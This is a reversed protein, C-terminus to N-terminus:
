PTGMDLDALVSMRWTTFSKMISFPHCPREHPAQLLVKKEFGDLLISVDVQPHCSHSLPVYGNRVKTLRFFRTVGRSTLAFIASYKPEIPNPNTAGKFTALKSPCVSRIMAPTWINSPTM